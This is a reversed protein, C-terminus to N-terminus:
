SCFDLWAPSTHLRPPWPLGAATPHLLTAARVLLCRYTQPRPSSCIVALKILLSSTWVPEYGDSSLDQQQRSSAGGAALFLKHWQQCGMPKKLAKFVTVFNGFGMGRSEIRRPSGLLPRMASSVICSSFTRHPLQQSYCSCGDYRCARQPQVSLMTAITVCELATHCAQQSAPQFRLLM